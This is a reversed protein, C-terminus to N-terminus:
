DLTFESVKYLVPNQKGPKKFVAYNQGPKFQNFEVIQYGEEKILKEMTTKSNYNWYGRKAQEMDFDYQCDAYHIM